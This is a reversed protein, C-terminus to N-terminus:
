LMGSSPRVPREARSSGAARSSRSCSRPTEEQRLYNRLSGLESIRRKLNETAGELVRMRHWSESRLPEAFCRFLGIAILERMVGNLLERSELTLYRAAAAQLRRGVILLNDGARLERQLEDAVHENMAGCIGASGAQRPKARSGGGSGMESPWTIDITVVTVTLM